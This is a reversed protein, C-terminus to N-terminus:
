GPQQLAMELDDLRLPKPLFADMGSARCKEESDATVNATLAVIRLRGPLTGNEELARIEQTAAFGDLVPMQCDMLCMDFRERKVAEVAERGHSATTVEYGLKEVLRKGLRQNILNDEVLLVKGKSDLEKSKQSVQSPRATALPIDCKEGKPPSNNTVEADVAFRVRPPYSRLYMNSREEPNDLMHLVSHM